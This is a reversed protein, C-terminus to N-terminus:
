LTYSYVSAFFVVCSAINMLPMLLSNWMVSSNTEKTLFVFPASMWPATSSIIFLVPKFYSYSQPNVVLPESQMTLHVFPTMAKISFARDFALMMILSIYVCQMMWCFPIDAFDSFICSTTM